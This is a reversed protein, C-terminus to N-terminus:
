GSSNPRERFTVIGRLPLPVAAAYRAFNEEAHEARQPDDLLFDAFTPHMRPRPAEHLTDDESTAIMAGTRAAIAATYIELVWDGLLGANREAYIQSPNERILSLVAVDVGESRPFSLVFRGEGAEHIRMFGAFREIGIEQLMDSLTSLSITRGLHFEVFRNV